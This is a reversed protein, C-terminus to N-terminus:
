WNHLMVWSGITYCLRAFTADGVNDCVVSQLLMLFSLQEMSDNVTVTSVSFCCSSMVYQANKELDPLTAMENRRIVALWGRGIM